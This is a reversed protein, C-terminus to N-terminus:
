HTIWELKPPALKNFAGSTGDIQDKLRGNPFSEMEGFYEINWLGDMIDVNKARAQSCFPEARTVKDGRVIEAYIIYGALARITLEASEKGGSGPEQEIWTEVRGYMRADLEATQVIVQERGTAGWRGKVVDVVCYRGDPYKAMLVGATRAGTGGETGAKDWYRVFKSDRPVAKVLKFWDRQLMGGGRPAPRQQLQGATGYELLSGEMQLVSLEDLRAPWLLEGDEKRPDRLEPRLRQLSTGIIADKPLEQGDATAKKGSDLKIPVEYFTRGEEYRMPLCLHEYGLERSLIEGSLDNEKIRQMTVVKVVTKPDIFRTPMTEFWWDVVGQRIVDSEAEKVKHPDDPCIFDGGEGTGMGAVSSALRFGAASNEFRMKADQDRSITYIHGFRRQYWDSKIVRRCKMSDRTSFAESYSAFLWRSGPRFTWVWAPWFVAVSLSKMCRPPMNIILSRIQGFTCAELHESICDLHWNSM